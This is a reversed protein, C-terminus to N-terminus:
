GIKTIKLLGWILASNAEKELAGAMRFGRSLRLPALVVDMGLFGLGIEHLRNGQDARGVDAAADHGM